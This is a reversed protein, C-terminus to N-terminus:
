VATEFEDDYPPHTYTHIRSSSRRIACDSIVLLLLLTLVGLSAWQLVLMSLNSGGPKVTPPIPVTAQTTTAPPGTSTWRPRLTSSTTPPLPTTANYPPTTSNGGDTPLKTSGGSGPETTVNAKGGAPTGTPVTTKQSGTASPSTANQTPPTTTVNTEGPEPTPSGKGPGSTQGTTSPHPTPAGTSAHDESPTDPTKQTINDGGTPHASTLLPTHSTSNDGSTPSSTEPPSSPGPSDSPNSGTPTSPQDPTAPTTVNNPPSTVVPTPRTANPTPNTVGATPSTADSAQSPSANGPTPSTANPSPSADGPTPGTANPSPSSAGPTPSPSTAGTTPGTAEPTKSTTINDQPSPTSTLAPSDPTAPKSSENTPATQETNVSVPLSTTEHPSSPAATPTSNASTGTPEPTSYTPTTTSEPARTFIVKHSTTTANAATRTIILPRSTLGSGSITIEFTRNGAFKGSMNGCSASTTSNLTWKCKFDTATNNPWAWFATVTVNQSTINEANVMPMSYNANEGVYTIHTTNTPMDQPSPIEDSFVIPSQLCADEGGPLNGSYFVYLISSNGLFRPVPRPTLRLNYMYGTGPIPTTAPSTATLVGGSAFHPKDGTCTITFKNEGPLVQPIEGGESECQMDIGGGIMETKVGFTSAPASTPLSIPLTIDMGQAKVKATINTSNCRDWFIPPVPDLTLYVPRAMQAHHCWWIDFVDQFYVDVSEMSVQDENVSVNIPLKTSRMTLAMTGAGLLELMFLDTVNEVGGTANLPQYVHTSNPNIQGFNLGLRQSAEGVKFNVFVHVNATCIGCMPYFPFQLFEMNFFGPDEGVIHVTSQITYQCLLLAAEM